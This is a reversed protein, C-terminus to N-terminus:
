QGFFIDDPFFVQTLVVSKTGVIIKNIRAQGEIKENCLERFSFLIGARYLKNTGKARNVFPCASNRRKSLRNMAAISVTIM